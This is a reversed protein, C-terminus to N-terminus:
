QLLMLTNKGPMIHAIQKNGIENTVACPMNLVKEFM